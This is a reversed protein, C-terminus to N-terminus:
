LTGGAASRMVDEMKQRIELFASRLEPTMGAQRGALELGTVDWDLMLVWINRDADEMVAIRCPMFVVM